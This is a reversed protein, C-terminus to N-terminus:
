EGRKELKHIEAAELVPVVMAQAVKATEAIISEACLELIRQAADPNIVIEVQGYESAFHVYGMLKGKNEGYTKTDIDIRTVKM